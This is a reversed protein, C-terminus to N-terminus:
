YCLCRHNVSLDNERRLATLREPTEVVVAEGGSSDVTNRIVNQCIVSGKRTVADHRTHGVVQPQADPPIHQFDIWILGADPGKPHSKGMGFVLPNEDVVARQTYTDCEGGITDRLQDAADVLRGNVTTTDYENAQGAHAYTVDYGDYAAVLHGDLIADLLARRGALGVNGSFWSDWRFLTPTLIGMEHNGLTIRVHGLPAEEILRQVMQLTEVNSPGRDVLDGNFVLIYDNDAWHLCGNDDQVVVPDYEPHDRLTLLASRAADLYGHIDSISVIALKGGEDTRCASM